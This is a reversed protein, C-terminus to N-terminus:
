YREHSHARYPTIDCVGGGINDKIAKNTQDFLTKYHKKQYNKIIM